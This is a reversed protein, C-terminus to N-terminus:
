GGHQAVVGCAKGQVGVGVDGGRHLGLCGIGDAAEEGTSDLLKGTHTLIHTLIPLSFYIAAFLESFRVFSRHFWAIEGSNQCAALSEFGRGEPGSIHNKSKVTKRLSRFDNIIRPKKVASKGYGRM